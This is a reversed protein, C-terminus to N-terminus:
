ISNLPMHAGALSIPSFSFNCILFLLFIAIAIAIRKVIEFPAENISIGLALPCRGGNDMGDM